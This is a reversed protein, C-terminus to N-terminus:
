HKCPNIIEHKLNYDAADDVVRFILKCEDRYRRELDSRYIERKKEMSELENRRQKWNEWKKLREKRQNKANKGEKAPEPPPQLSGIMENILNANFKKNKHKHKKYDENCKKEAEKESAKAKKYKDAEESDEWRFTDTFKKEEEPMWEAGSKKDSELYLNSLGKLQNLVAQGKVEFEVKVKFMYPKHEQEEVSVKTTKVVYELVPPPAVPPADAPPKPTDAEAQTQNLPPEPQGGPAPTPANEKAPPPDQQEKEDPQSPRDATPHSEPQKAQTTEKQKESEPSVSKKDTKDKPAPKNTEESQVAPSKPRPTNDATKEEPSQLAVIGLLVVGAVIGGVVWASSTPRSRSNEHRPTKKAAAPPIRFYGPSSPPAAQPAAMPPPAVTPMGMPMVPMASPVTTPPAMSPQPAVVVQEVPPTLSADIKLVMAAGRPSVSSQSQLIGIIPCVNSSVTSVSATIFPCSWGFDPRLMFGEHLLQLYDEESVTGCMYMGSRCEPGKMWKANDANGTLRLWTGTDVMHPHPMTIEELYRAPETWGLCWSQALAALVAAPSTNQMMYMAEDSDHNIILHHAVHNTRKTYDVGCDGIRSFISYSLDGMSWTSYFLFSPVGAARDFSSLRELHTVLARPLDRSRAVTGFGTKGAELLRPASTYILQQM